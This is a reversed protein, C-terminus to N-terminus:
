KGTGEPVLISEFNAYIIFPSTIKREYYKFKVYEIKKPMIMKQKDNIKFCDKIHCKLIEETSFAQLCYRSFYKKRRDLNHNYM